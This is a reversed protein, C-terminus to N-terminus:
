TVHDRIYCWVAYFFWVFPLFFFWELFVEVTSGSCFQILVTLLFMFAISRYHLLGQRGFDSLPTGCFFPALGLYTTPIAGGEVSFLSEWPLFM